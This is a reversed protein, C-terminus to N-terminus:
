KNRYSILAPARLGTAGVFGKAILTASMKNALTLSITGVVTNTGAWKIRFTNTTASGLRSLEIFPTAQKFKIGSFILSDTTNAYVDIAPTATPPNPITNVFRVRYNADAAPYVIEDEVVLVRDAKKISDCLFLSYYKQYKFSVPEFRYLFSDRTTAPPTGLALNVELARETRIRTVAFYDLGSPFTAGVATPVASLLTNNYTFRFAASTQGSFAPQAFPYVNIIKVFAHLYPNQEEYSANYDSKKECSFQLIGIFLITLIKKM